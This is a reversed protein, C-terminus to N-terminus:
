YAPSNTLYELAETDSVWRKQDLLIKKQIEILKDDIIIEEKPKYYLFTFEINTDQLAKGVDELNRKQDDIFIIKKPSFKAKTLFSKLLPGKNVSKGTYIVGGIFIPYRINQKKQADTLLEEFVFGNLFDFNHDSFEIGYEKLLNNKWKEVNEIQGFEGTRCSTLAIINSSCNTLDNLIQDINEEMLRYNSTSLIISMLLSAQEDKLKYEKKLNAMFKNVGLQSIADVYAILTEDIDFIIIDPKDQAFKKIEKLSTIEHISSHKTEKDSQFASLKTSSSFIMFIVSFIMTLFKM